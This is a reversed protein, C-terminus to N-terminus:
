SACAASPGGGWKETWLLFASSGEKWKSGLGQFTAQLPWSEVRHGFLPPELKLGTGSRLDNQAKRQRPGGLGM